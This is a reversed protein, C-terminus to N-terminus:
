GGTVQLTAHAGKEALSMEHNVISYHGAAPPTFEVFGGQAALLPLVQAGASGSAAGPADGDRIRYAGETWVTDFQVGVVHFAWSANPGADLVWIRVRKGAVATLPHADYQFPRGNFAMLDPIATAVKAADAPQGNAGLYLESQILVYSRDVRPLDRPEIVVAGFMGNAIHESMPATSCHYLWIGAKAATFDYRLSQGPALTRMPEDPALSGAHFDISHGMSGHNVLTVHFVDGVVGHLIPGPTTGNYTWVQRTVGDSLRQEHETVTLTVTHVTGGARAADSLPPLEAPYAAERAAEAKLEAPTPVTADASPSASPASSGAVGSAVITLTMGLQKHGPLSCWGQVDGSIIGADVSRREGPALTPVSVGTSLVLDHSQTDANVLTLELDNGAPVVIRDPSFAMNKATVSVRTTRGTPAVAAAAVAGSGGTGRGSLRPDVLLAIVTACLVIAVGVIVWVARAPADYGEGPVAAKARNESM